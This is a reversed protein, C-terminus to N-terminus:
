CVEGAESQEVMPTAIFRPSGMREFFSPAHTESGESRAEEIPRAGVANQQLSSHARDVLAAPRARQWRTRASTRLAGAKGVSLLMVM